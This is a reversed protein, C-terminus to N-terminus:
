PLSKVIRMFDEAPFARLTESTVNGQMAGGLALKVATEDDPAESIVVADYRGMTYYVGKIDAGAAKAMQRAAEIRKPADKISEIGKKTFKLLTVYTPM